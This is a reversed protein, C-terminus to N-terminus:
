SGTVGSLLRDLDEATLEENPLRVTPSRRCVGVPSAERRARELAAFNPSVPALPRCLRAAAWLRVGGFAILVDGEVLLWENLPRGNVLTRGLRLADQLWLAEGDWALELQRPAVGPYALCLGASPASGISTEVPSDAVFVFREPPAGRVVHLRAWPKDPFSSVDM